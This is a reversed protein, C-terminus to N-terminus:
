FKGSATLNISQSTTISNAANHTYLLMVETMHSMEDDPVVAQASVFAM